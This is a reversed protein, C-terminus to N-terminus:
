SLGTQCAHTTTTNSHTESTLYGTGTKGGPWSKRSTDHTCYCTTMAHLWAWNTQTQTSVFLVEYVQPLFFPPFFRTFLAAMKIYLFYKNIWESQSHRQSNQSTSLPNNKHKKISTFSASSPLEQIMTNKFVSFLKHQENLENKLGGEPISADQVREVQVAFMMVKEFIWTIM